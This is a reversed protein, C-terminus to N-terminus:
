TIYVLEVDFYLTADPPIKNPYGKEGHAYSPPCKVKVKEGLSM